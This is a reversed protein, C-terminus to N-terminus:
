FLFLTSYIKSKFTSLFLQLLYVPKETFAIQYNYYLM